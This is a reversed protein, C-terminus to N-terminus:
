GMGPVRFGRNQGIKRSKPPLYPNVWLVAFFGIKAMKASKPPKQRGRPRGGAGAGPPRFDRFKGGGRGPTFIPNKRLPPKPPTKPPYGWPPSFAMTFYEGVPPYPPTRPPDWPPDQPPGSKPWFTCFKDRSPSNNFVRWFTCGGPGGAGGGPTGGPPTGGFQWFDTKESGPPTQGGFQCFRLIVTKPPKPVGEPYVGEALPPHPTVM